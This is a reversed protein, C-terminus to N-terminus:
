VKQSTPFAFSPAKEKEGVGHDKWSATITKTQTYFSAGSKGYFNNSGAFSDGWGTFSFFPLPVPIPINIGVQGADVDYQFKKASTGSSTFIATGNGYRNRNVVQIAEDLTDVRVCVLVPGFIEEQYCKMDTTVDSLITAGVFNGHPYNEVQIGRGDLVCRAGDDIGSQVLGEIREKAAVSIVPGIDADPECGANVKLAKAKALLGEEWRSIDKGVFVAVSIAMCRQGAAGFAAGALANVTADFPADEMVVAHNKAGMNSQVRKGNAAGRSYIHRGATDAGVFSIAKIDPHDCIANVCDRTGHVINLVGPPLGAQMALDALMMCAGPDQESPKLVMTNGTTVALPFMWLPVMAPFNFPCIGATVGLPERVSYCDIDKAVNSILEGMTTTGANCASEVIELGRFVDGRADPLTKGQELTVNAALEDMNERILHQLKFMVRSRVPVPTNRWAPFAERASEVAAAFEAPTCEPVRSVVDQTAPNTVDIWKDTKSEVFKGGILLPVQPASQASQAPQTAYRAHGTTTSVSSCMLQQQQASVASTATSSTHSSRQTLLRWMGARTSSSMAAM